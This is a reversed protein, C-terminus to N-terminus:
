KLPERKAAILGVVSGVLAWQIRSIEIGNFTLRVGSRRMLALDVLALSVGIVAVIGLEKASYQQEHRAIFCSVLTTSAILRIASAVRAM